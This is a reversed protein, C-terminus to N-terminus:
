HDFTGRAFLSPFKHRGGEGTVFWIHRTSTSTSANTCSHPPCPLAHSQSVAKPLPDARLWIPKKSKSVQRVVPKLVFSPATTHPLFAHSCAPQTEAESLMLLWHKMYLHLNANLYDLLLEFSPYSLINLVATNTSIFKPVLWPQHM